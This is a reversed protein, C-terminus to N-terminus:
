ANEMLRKALASRIHKPMNVLRDLLVEGKWVHDPKWVVQELQDIWVTSLADNMAAGAYKAHTSM